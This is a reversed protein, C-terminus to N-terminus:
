PPSAVSKGNLNVGTRQAEWEAAKQAIEEQEQEKQLRQKAKKDARKSATTKASPLKSGNQIEEYASKKTRQQDYTKKRQNIEAIDSSTTLKRIDVQNPRQRDEHLVGELKNAPSMKTHVNRLFVFDGVTLNERTWTGNNGYLRVDLTFQGYPGVWEKKQYWNDPDDPDAYLFLHKNSTYDTVKLEVSGINNWYINVIQARIDYHSDFDLDKILSLRDRKTSKATSVVAAHQKVHELSGAAAHKLQIVTLQEQKSPPRTGSMASHVLDRDGGGVQPAPIAHAPFVLVGSHLSIVSVCLLSGAWADLRFNLIIAVDGVGSSKPFKDPSNRFMRCVISSSGAVASTTFDDQICFELVWDTGKTKRPEKSSIIVGILSAPTGPTTADKIATFGAPLSLPMQIQLRGSATLATPLLSPGPFPAAAVGVLPLRPRTGPHTNAPAALGYLPSKDAPVTRLRLHQYYHYHYHDHDHGTNPQEPLRARAM